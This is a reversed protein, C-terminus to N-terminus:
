GGVCGRKMGEQYGGIFSLLVLQCLSEMANSYGVEDSAMRLILNFNLLGTCIFRIFLVGGGGM